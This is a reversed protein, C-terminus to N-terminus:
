TGVVQVKGSAIFDTLAPPATREFQVKSTDAMTFFTGQPTIAPLGAANLADVLFDRKKQYFAALWQYYTPYGEFPQAARELSTAVAEQLPTAVSFCVWQNALQLPMILEPRGCAWGIKWGTVSFTKGASYISITREWMGPTAAFPVHRCGDFVLHEYVEDSLVLCNPFDQLVRAIGAYEDATFVKGTPNHPSNLILMRTNPTLAQRLEDLDLYFDGASQLTPKRTRLPVHTMRGGALEVAGKYIDFYPEVVLVDCGDQVYAQLVLFIAESAGVTVTCERVPDLPRGVLRPGYEAAIQETM